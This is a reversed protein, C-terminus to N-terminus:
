CAPQKAVYGWGFQDDRGKAGLDIVTQSLLPIISKPDPARGRAVELATLVTVFPSAFSTGSQLKGGGGPTATFVDVGPAAFDIYAGFNAHSYLVGKDGFATVAMVEDYAAPYAPRQDTGWNGGAAIMAVNKAKAKEIIDRVIKNDAGAVSFNIAQLNEGLLWDMSKMLGVASGVDRGVENTEFMNGARLVAGPLLGGWEPKGVM